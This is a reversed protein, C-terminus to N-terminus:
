ETLNSLLERARAAEMGKPHAAILKTWYERVKDFNKLNYYIIGMNFLGKPHIPDIELAKEMEAIAQDFQRLNFYCVAMDIQVAINRPDGSLAKKYFPIAQDFQSHDFLLNAMEINLTVSEPDEALQELKAKIEQPIDSTNSSISRKEEITKQNSDLILFIIIIAALISTIIFGFAHIPNTFSTLGKKIDNRAEAKEKSSRVEQGCEPCFKADRPLEQKCKICILSM